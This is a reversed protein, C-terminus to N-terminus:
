SGRVRAQEGDSETARACESGFRLFPNAPFDRSSLVPGAVRLVRIARAPVYCFVWARGSRWWPGAVAAAMDNSDTIGGYLADSGVAVKRLEDHRSKRRISSTGM